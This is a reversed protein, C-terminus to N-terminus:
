PNGIDSLIKEYISNKEPICLSNELHNTIGKEIFDLTTRRILLKRLRSLNTTYTNFHKMLYPSNEQM